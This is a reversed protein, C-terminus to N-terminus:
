RSKALVSMLTRYCRFQSHGSTACLPREHARNCGRLKSGIALNFMAPHRARGEIELKARIPRVDHSPKAGALESETWPGRKHPKLIVNVLNLIAM